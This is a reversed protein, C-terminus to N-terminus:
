KIDTKTNDLKLTGKQSLDKLFEKDFDAIKKKHSDELKFKEFTDSFTNLIYISVELNRELAM